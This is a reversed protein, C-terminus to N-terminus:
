DFRHWSLSITNGAGGSRHACVAILHGSTPQLQAFCWADANDSLLPDIELRPQRFPELTFWYRDLPLALGLGRAKAYSEKLTWLEFFRRAQEEPPLARLVRVESPAFFRDAVDIPAPRSLSEVDVGVDLGHTIACVVLGSTNSLNFRLASPPSAIEPRGKAGVVFAWEKESVAEYRSLM